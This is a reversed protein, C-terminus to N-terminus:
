RILKVARHATRQPLLNEFPHSIQVVASGRTVRICKQLLLLEEGSDIIQPQPDSRTFRAGLSRDHNM